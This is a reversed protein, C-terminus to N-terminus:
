DRFMPHTQGAQAGFVTEALPRRTRPELERSRLPEPLIDIQGPYGMAWMAIARWDGPMRLEVQARPADFGAMGHMLVGEQMAQMTMTADALGLDHVAVPNPKGNRSFVTSAAAVFLVPAVKAWANQEVLLSEFQARHPDRKLAIFFRWPQENFSSAAWRAGEFIRHLSDSDVPRPDFARPSWRGVIFELLGGVDSAPRLLPVMEISAM